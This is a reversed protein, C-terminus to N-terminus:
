QAIYDLIATVFKDTFIGVDSKSEKNWLNKLFIIYNWGGGWLEWCFYM